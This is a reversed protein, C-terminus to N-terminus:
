VKFVRTVFRMLINLGFGIAYKIRGCRVNWWLSDRYFEWAAGEESAELLARSLSRATHCIYRRRDEARAKGGPYRGNKEEQIIHRLGKTSEDLNVSLSGPTERYFVTGPSDIKVFGEVTGLRLALDKDEYVRIQPRFGEKGGIVDRRIAVNNSSFYHHDRSGALFDAYAKTSLPGSTAEAEYKDGRVWQGLVIAPRGHSMIAEDYCKLTWPFWLDDSDLFVVYEGKALAVGANRAASPGANEQRILRLEPMKGKGSYQRRFVSFESEIAEVTSDTSGDDVVIIEEPVRTQQLASELAGVVLAERNYVPMILSFTTSM